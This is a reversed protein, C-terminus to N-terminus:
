PKPNMRKKIFNSSYFPLPPKANSNKDFLLLSLGILTLQTLDKQPILLMGTRTLASKGRIAALLCLFINSFFPDTFPNFRKSIM